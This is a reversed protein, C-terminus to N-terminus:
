FVLGHPEVAYHEFTGISTDEVFDAFATYDEHEKGSLPLAAGIEQQTQAIYERNVLMQALDPAASPPVM